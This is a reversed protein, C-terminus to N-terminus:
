LESIHHVTKILKNDKDVLFITPTSNVGYAKAIESDWRLLETYNYWPFDKTADLFAKEESDLSIAVIEGGEKKFKEYYEKVAPLEANCAPCWSAWFLIIKKDAKVDFLSKKGKVATDFTINPVVNGIQLGEISAIKDKLDNGVKGKLSKAKDLNEKYVNPFQEPTIFSLVSTLVSQGRASNIDTKALLNDIIPKITEEINTNTKNKQAFESKVYNFVFSNVYGLQDLRVDDKVLHNLLQINQSEEGGVTVTNSDSNKSVENILQSLVNNYKVLESGNSLQNELTTIRASEDSIAKYFTDTPKYYLSLQSFVNNKLEVLAAIDQQQIYQKATEGKLVNVSKGIPNTNDATFVVDSNDSILQIEQGTNLLFQVQGNYKNPIKVSFEGKANTKAKSLLISNAGDFIKVLVNQNAYNNITGDVKFQAFASTTFLVSLGFLIKKM